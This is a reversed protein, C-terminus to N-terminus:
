AQAETHETGEAVPAEPAPDSPAEAVPAPTVKLVGDAKDSPDVTAGATAAVDKAKGHLEDHLWHEGRDWAAKARDTLLKLEAEIEAFLKLMTIHETLPQPLRM